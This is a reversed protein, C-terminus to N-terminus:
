AFPIPTLSVRNLRFTRLMTAASCRATDLLWPEGAIARQGFSALNSVAMILAPEDPFAAVLDSSLQLIEAPRGLEALVLGLDVSALAAEAPSPEELLKRRVSELLQAAEASDGLRSIARAEFWFARLVQREDTVGSYLNWAEKLVDRAREVNGKEALCSALTFGVRLAILPRIERAMSAWGKQLSPLPNGFGTEEARLLGLLARCTGEEGGVGDFSFLRVAHQLLADAEDIRGQAWRVLGATRCYIARESPFEVFAAAQALLADAGDLDNGLRRANAGLCLARTLAGPAEADSKSLAVALRAALHSLNEARVADGPQSGQCDELLLDLLEMSQFRAEGIREHQLNGPVELLERLLVEAQHRRRQSEAIREPSVGKLTLRLGSSSEDRTDDEESQWYPKM